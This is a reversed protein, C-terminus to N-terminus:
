IGADRLTRWCVRTIIRQWSDKKTYATLGRRGRWLCPGKCSICTATHQEPDMYTSLVYTLGSSNRCLYTPGLYISHQHVFRRCQLHIYPYPPHRHSVQAHNSSQSSSEHIRHLHSSHLSFSALSLTRDAVQRNGKQNVHDAGMRWKVLSKQKLLILRWQFKFM